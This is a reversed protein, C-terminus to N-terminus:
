FSIFYLIFLLIIEKSSIKTNKNLGDGEHAGRHGFKYIVNTWIITQYRFPM